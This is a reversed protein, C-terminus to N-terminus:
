RFIWKYLQKINLIKGDDTRVVKLTIPNHGHKVWHQVPAVSSPTTSLELLKDCEFCKFSSSSEIDVDSKIPTCSAEPCNNDVVFKVKSNVILPTFTQPSLGPHHDEYHDTFCKALESEDKHSNLM